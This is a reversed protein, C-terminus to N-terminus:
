RYDPGSRMAIIKLKIVHNLAWLICNSGFSVLCEQIQSSSGLVAAEQSRKPNMMGNVLTSKLTIELEKRRFPVILCWRFLYLFLSASDWLPYMTVLPLMNHSICNLLQSLVILEMTLIIKLAAYHHAYNIFLKWDLFEEFREGKCTCFLCEYIGMSTICTRQKCQMWTCEYQTSNNHTWEVSEVLHCRNKSGQMDWFCHLLLSQGGFWFLILNKWM